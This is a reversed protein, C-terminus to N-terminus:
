LYRYYYKKHNLGWDDGMLGPLDFREGLQGAFEKRQSHATTQKHPPLGSFIYRRKGKGFEYVFRSKGIRRRGKM